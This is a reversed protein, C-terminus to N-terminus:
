QLKRIMRPIEDFRDFWVPQVGCRKYKSSANNIENAASSRYPKRGPWKLLAYHWRGPCRRWADRLLDNMAPDEFSCGIYLVYHVPNALYNEYIHNIVENTHLYPAEFQSAALVFKVKTIKFLRRPTYGHPHFIKQYVGQQGAREALHNPDGAIGDERMAFAARALKKADFAEGMLDDYNYTIICDWYGLDAISRHIESPQLNNQYLIGHLQTFLHQGFTDYCLQAGQMLAEADAEAANILALIRRAASADFGVFGSTQQDGRELATTLLQQVLEAWSPGGAAQTAGAGLVVSLKNSQRIFRMVELDIDRREPGLTRRAKELQQDARDVAARMTTRDAAVMYMNNIYSMIALHVLRPPEEFALLELLQDDGGVLASQWAAKKGGFINLHDM